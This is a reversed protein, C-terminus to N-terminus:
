IEYKAKVYKSRFYIVFVKAAFLFLIDFSSFLTQGSCHQRAMSILDLYARSIYHFNTIPTAVDLWIKGLRRWDYEDESDLDTMNQKVPLSKFGRQNTM